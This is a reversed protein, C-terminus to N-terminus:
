AGATAIAASAMREGNQRHVDLIAKAVADLVGFRGETDLWAFQGNPNVELFWLRGCQDRLFDLRGFELSTAEMFRCVSAEEETGLACPEWIAEGTLTPIRCDEGTFTSRMTKFALAKGQVYVVTVDEVANEVEEQLFWPFDPSLQKPEVRRVMLIGGAGIPVPAMVKCVTKGSWPPNTETLNGHRIQWQPVAFFQAALRMQRIKSWRGLSSPKVLALRGDQQALDRLGEWLCIVQERCWSEQNGDAPIDLYVPDFLLKRLYVASVESDRCVRGVPDEIWFDGPEISWRYDRWLDINARFVDVGEFRDLLLDTTVDRSHTLVLIM